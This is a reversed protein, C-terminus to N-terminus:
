VQLFKRIAVMSGGVGITFGAGLFIHLMYKSLEDFPLLTILGIGATQSIMDYVIGYCFSQLGYAILAGFLGLIVGEVVFPARIFSNTAGVMKMIAIEERRYFTALRITNAMIFLSVTILIVVLIFAVTNAINRVMVFGNAIELAVSVHAVEELNEVAEVTKEMSEINIVRIRFRDRLVDAPLSDLLVNAEQNSKYDEMAEDRSVFVVSAINYVGLLTSKLAAAEESTYSEDIYALFENESELDGLMKDMNVAVLTFSGMILLCAIIMCMAAFSMMSHAIISRFGERIFYGIDLFFGQKKDMRMAVQEMVSLKEM